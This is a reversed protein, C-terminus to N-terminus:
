GLIRAALQPRPMRAGFLVDYSFTTQKYDRRLELRLTLGSIPDIASQIISGLGEASGVLPRNAFAFADRHFLLNTVSTTAAATGVATSVNIVEGGATSGLLTPFINVTTNAGQTVTVATAVAYFGAAPGSAIQIVDGVVANWSTGAAKAISLTQQVGSAAPANVGNVTLAGAGVAGTTHSQVNQDLYWDAGVRHGILGQVIGAQDGTSYAQLFLALNLANAEADPGLIVRRDTFPSPAKNLLKRADRYAALDSAFPTTAPTGAVNFVLQLATSPGGTESGDPLQLIFQDAYNALAKIAESAQMPIIGAMAELADKDSLQFPAEIWQDMPINVKTPGLDAAQPPVAAATVTRTAIASPIPVDISTGKDGAIDSYAANVLRPMIAQQRLALLGQALIQPIAAALSNAM